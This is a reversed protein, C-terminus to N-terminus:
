TRMDLANGVKGALLDASSASTGLYHTTAAGTGLQSCLIANWSEEFVFSYVGLQHPVGEPM